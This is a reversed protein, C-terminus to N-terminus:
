TVPLFGVTLKETTATSTDGTTWPRYRLVALVLLVAVAVLARSILPFRNSM